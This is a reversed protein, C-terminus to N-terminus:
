DKLRLKLIKKIDDLNFGQRMVQIMPKESPFSLAKLVGSVMTEKKKFDPVLTFYNSVLLVHISRTLFIIWEDGTFQHEVRQYGSRIM